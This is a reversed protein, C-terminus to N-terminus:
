AYAEMRNQEFMGAFEVIAAEVQKSMAGGCSSDDGVLQQMARAKKYERLAAQNDGNNLHAIGQIVYAAVLRAELCGAADDAYCRATGSNGINTLAWELSSVTRDMGLGRSSVHGHTFGAAILQQLNQM